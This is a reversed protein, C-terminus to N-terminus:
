PPTLPYENPYCDFMTSTIVVDDVRLLPSGDNCNVQLYEGHFVGNDYSCLVYAGSWQYSVWDTDRAFVLGGSQHVALIEEWTKDMIYASENDDWTANVLIIPVGGSSAAEIGREMKNLNEATITDGTQWTTPTYSM